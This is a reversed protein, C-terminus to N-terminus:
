KHHLVEKVIRVVAKPTFLSKILYFNTRLENRKALTEEETLNSLVIIPIKALNEDAKLDKILSIGDKVPMMIDILALDPKEASIVNFGEEGDGATVVEYGNEELALQYIERISPEDEVICIKQKKIPGYKKYETM